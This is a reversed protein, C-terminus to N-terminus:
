FLEGQEDPPADPLEPQRAVARLAALGDVAIGGRQIALANGEAGPPAQRFRIVFAPRRLGSAHRFTILTGSRPRAEVVLLARGLAAILRDRRVAARGTWAEDPPQESVLILDDGIRDAFPTFDDRLRFSRIGTPLICVTRGGVDLTGLHAASDIGTAYGSVVTWGAEAFERGAHRAIAEGQRSPRASGAVAFTREKDQPLIGRAYLIPPPDTLDRFGAPYDADHWTLIRVGARELEDLTSRAADVRPEPNRLAAAVPPGACAAVANAPAALVESPEGIADCLARFTVPGVGPTEALAIWSALDAM